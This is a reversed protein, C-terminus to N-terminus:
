EQQAYEEKLNGDEDYKSYDFKGRTSPKGKKGLLPTTTKLHEAKSEAAQAIRAKLRWFEIVDLDVTTPEIGDLQWPPVGLLQADKYQLYWEPIEGAPVLPSDLL